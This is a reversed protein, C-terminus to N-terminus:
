LTARIATTISTAPGTYNLVLDRFKQTGTFGLDVTVEVKGADVGTLDELTITGFSPGPSCSSSNLGNLPCTLDLTITAAYTQTAATSILTVVLFALWFHNAARWKGFARLSWVLSRIM